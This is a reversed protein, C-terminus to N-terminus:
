VEAAGAGAPTIDIILEDGPWVAEALVRARHRGRLWRAAVIWGAVLLADAILWFLGVLGADVLLTV